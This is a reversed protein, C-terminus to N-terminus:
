KVSLLTLFDDLNKEVVESAVTRSSCTWFFWAYLIVKVLAMRRRRRRWCKLDPDNWGGTSQKSSRSASAAFYSFRIAARICTLACHCKARPSWNQRLTPSSISMPYRTLPPIPSLGLIAYLRRLLPVISHIWLPLVDSLPNPKIIMLRIGNRVRFNSEPIPMKSPSPPLTASHNGQYPIVGLHWPFMM